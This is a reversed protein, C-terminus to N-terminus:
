LVKGSDYWVSCAHKTHIIVSLIATSNVQWLFVSKAICFMPAISFCVIDYRKVREGLEIRSM